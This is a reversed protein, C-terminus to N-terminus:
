DGEKRWNSEPERYHRGALRPEFEPQGALKAIEKLVILTVAQQIGRETARDYWASLDIPKGIALRVKAAMFLCGFVSGDFPSGDVYMPVIPVRARLAILAAGPRGPLLVDGTKNIRGEPFMGVLGGRQTYRIAIKTAKTDIGGRSVPICETARFFWSLIPLVCYEKAVMWHVVRRTSLYLFTPDVPARHNSVIVAGQQPALDFSGHVSARWLIRVLLFNLGFLLSQPVTFPMRQLTRYVALGAAAGLNLLVCWAVLETALPSLM